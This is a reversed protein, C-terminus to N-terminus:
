ANIVFIGNASHVTILDLEEKQRKANTANSDELLILAEMPIYRLRTAKSAYNQSLRIKITLQSIRNNIKMANNALLM